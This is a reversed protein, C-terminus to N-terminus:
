GAPQLDVLLPQGRRASQLVADAKAANGAAEEALAIWCSYGPYNTSVFPSAFATGGSIWRFPSRYTIWPCLCCRGGRKVASLM